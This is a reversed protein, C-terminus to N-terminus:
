TRTPSEKYCTKIPIAVFIKQFDAGLKEEVFKGTQATAQKIRQKAHEM